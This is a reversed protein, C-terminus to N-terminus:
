IGGDLDLMDLGREAEDGCSGGVRDHRARDRLRRGEWRPDVHRGEGIGEVVGDGEDLPLAGVERGRGRPQRLECLPRQQRLDALVRTARGGYSVLVSAAVSM